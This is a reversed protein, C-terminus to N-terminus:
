TAARLLIWGFPARKGGALECVTRTSGERIWTRKQRNFGKRLRFSKDSGEQFDRQGACVDDGGRV